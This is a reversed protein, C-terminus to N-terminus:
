SVGYSTVFCIRAFVITVRVIKEGMFFIENWFIKNVTLLSNSMTSHYMTITLNAHGCKYLVIYYLLAELYAAELHTSRASVPNQIADLFVQSVPIKVLLRVFVNIKLLNEVIKAFNASITQTKVLRM